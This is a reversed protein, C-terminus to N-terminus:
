NPGTSPRIDGHGFPPAAIFLVNSYVLPHAYAFVYVPTCVCTISVPANFCSRNPTIHPHSQEFVHHVSWVGPWVQAGRIRAEFRGYAIGEPVRSKLIASKYPVTVGDRQHPAYTMTIAAMGDVVANSQSQTEVCMYGERKLANAKAQAVCTAPHAPPNQCVRCKTHAFCDFATLQSCNAATTPVIKVNAETTPVIKVNAPDWSWSPSWSAVSINWRTTNVEGSPTTLLFEDSFEDMLVWPDAAFTSHSSSFLLVLVSTMSEMRVCLYTAIM